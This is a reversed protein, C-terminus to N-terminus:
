FCTGPVKALVTPASLTIFSTLYVAEFHSVKYPKNGAHMGTSFYKQSLFM